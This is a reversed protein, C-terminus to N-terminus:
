LLGMILSQTEANSCFLMRDEATDNNKHDLRHESLKLVSVGIHYRSRISIRLAIMAGPLIPVCCSDGNDQAVKCGLIRLVLSACLGAPSLCIRMNIECSQSNQQKNKEVFVCAM